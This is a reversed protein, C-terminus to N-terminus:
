AEEQEKQVNNTQKTQLIWVHQLLRRHNKGLKQSFEYFTKLKIVLPVVASWAKEQVGEVSPNQIAQVCVCM